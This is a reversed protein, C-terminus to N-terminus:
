AARAGRRSEFMEMGLKALDVTSKGLVDLGFHRVVTDRGNTALRNALAPDSRVRRTATSLAQPDGPPVLLCNEGDRLLEPAWLGRIRSLIVPRGCSMAQLTVSQGTPQFVDHLPVVVVAACNYLRRLEEDTITSNAFGGVRLTIHAADDPMTVPRSTVILTPHRGPAAALTNFDRSPDQGIAFAYDGVPVDPMPRWFETDVGFKLISTKAPPIDYRSVAESRDASGLFFAHDLGAVSRRIISRVVPRASAPARDVIDSLGHFGGILVTKRATPPFGLGLSLSFGDTFSIAVKARAIAPAFLRTSLPRVGLRTLWAFGRELWDAVAGLGGTMAGASSIMAARIGAQELEFFGYFFERPAEEGRQLKELRLDRGGKNFVLIDADAPGIRTVPDM